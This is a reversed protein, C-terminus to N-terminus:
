KQSLIGSLALGFADLTYGAHSNSAGVLEINIDSVYPTGSQKAVVLAVVDSTDFATSLVIDHFWLSSDDPSQTMNFVSYVGAGMAVWAIGDWFQAVEPTGGIRHYSVNPPPSADVLTKTTTSLDILILETRLTDGPKIHDSTDADTSTSRVLLRLSPNVALLTFTNDTANVELGIANSPATITVTHNWDGAPLQSDWTQFTASWGAEGGQTTTTTSRTLPPVLAGVDQLSETQTIGNQGEDRANRVRAAAFGLQSALRDHNLADKILPPTGFVNDDLQLLHAITLRPDLTISDPTVTIPAVAEGTALGANPITVSATQIQLAAAFRNTIFASFTADFTQTALVGVSGGSSAGSITATLTYAKFLAAGLVTRHFVPDPYAYLAPEAGGFSVNSTTVLATTSGRVYGQDRQTVSWGVPLVQGTTDDSNVNYQATGLGTTKIAELRLRVTGARSSSGSVGDSTFFFDVNQSASGPTLTFSRINTADGNIRCRLTFTDPVEPPALGATAQTVVINVSSGAATDKVAATAQFTRTGGAISQVVITAIRAVVAM